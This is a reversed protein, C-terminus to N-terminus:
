TVLQAWFTNAFSKKPIRHDAFHLLVAVTAVGPNCITERNPCETVVQIEVKCGGCETAWFDLLVVKGRYDKLTVTKDSGDKLVFNPAPKRDKASQMIVRVTSGLTPGSGVSVLFMVLALTLNVRVATANM